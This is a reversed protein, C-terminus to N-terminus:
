GGFPFGTVGGTRCYNDANAINLINLNYVNCVNRVEYKFRIIYKPLLFFHGYSIKNTKYFLM